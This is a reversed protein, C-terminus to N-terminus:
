VGISIAFMTHTSGNNHDLGVGTLTPASQVWGAQTGGVMGAVCGYCVTDFPTKFVIAAGGSAIAQLNWNIKTGGPFLITGSGVGVDNIEVASAAIGLFDQMAATDPATTFDKMDASFGLDNKVADLDADALLALGLAGATVIPQISTEQENGQTVLENIKTKLTRLELSVQVQASPQPVASNMPTITSM